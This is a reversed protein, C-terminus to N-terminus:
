CSRRRYWYWGTSRCVEQAQTTRGAGPHGLIIVKPPKRPARTRGKVMFVKAVADAVHDLDGRGDVEHCQFSYAAKVGESNYTYEAVARQAAEEVEPMRIFLAKDEPHMVEVYHEKFSEKYDETDTHLMVVRDPIVGARQLALSQVRTRPTGELLYSKGQKEIEEIVPMLLDLLIDDSVHAGSQWASKIESSWKGAKKVEDKLLDIVSIREVRFRACIDKAITRRKSGSGGVLFLRRRRPNELKAILYDIPAEPRDILLEKLLHEFLDYVENDELYSEVTHQYELKQKLDM